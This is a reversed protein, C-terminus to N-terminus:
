EIEDVVLQHHVVFSVIRVVSATNLGIRVICIAEMARTACEMKTRLMGVYRKRRLFLPWECWQIELCIILLLLSFCHFLHHDREWYKENMKLLLSEFAFLTQM